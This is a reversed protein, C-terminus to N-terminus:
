ADYCVQISNTLGTIGPASWALEEASHRDALSPVQGALWIHGQDNSRVTITSGEFQAHRAIAAEIAGKVAGFAPSPKISIENLVETVGKLHRVAHEAAAREHQWSVEGTLTIAHDHVTAQVSAPINVAARLALCAQVAIEPDTIKCWINRVCLDLALATVGRVRLAAQGALVKQPYSDVEGTLTVSGRDATVGIHNSDIGPVRALEAMVSAKIETDTHLDGEIHTM